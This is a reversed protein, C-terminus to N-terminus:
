YTKGTSFDTIKRRQFNFSLGSEPDSYYAPQGMGSSSTDKKPIQDLGLDPQFTPMEPLRYIFVDPEEAKKGSGPREGFRLVRVAPIRSEEHCDLKLHEVM